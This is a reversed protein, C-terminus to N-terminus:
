GHFKVNEGTYQFFTILEKDAFLDNKGFLARYKEILIKADNPRNAKKYAQIMKGVVRIAFDKNENKSLNTNEIGRIKLANQYAAIAENTRESEVFIDGLVVQFNSASNKDNPINEAVAGRLVKAADDVQGTKALTQALLQVLSENKSNVFVAQRLADVASLLSNKDAGDLSQKFLEIALLNGPDDAISRSLFELAEQSDGSKLLVAGLKLTADEVTLQIKEREMVRGFFGVDLPTASSVWNKLANIQLEQENQAEYFESLFAWAEANRPDLRAVEKWEYISADASDSNLNGRGLNSKITNLRALIRHGGFNNKDLKTAIGALLLAEELNGQPPTTLALEAMTTYAEALNPELEVAKQLANKALRAATVKLNDNLNRMSWLYRHGELLKQYAEARKERSVKRDQTQNQLNNTLSSNDSSMPKPPPSTQPESQASINLSM